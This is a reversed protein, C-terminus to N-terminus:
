RLVAALKAFVPVVDLSDRMQERMTQGRIELREMGDLDSLLTDRTENKAMDLSQMLYGAQFSSTGDANVWSPDKKGVSDFALCAGEELINGMHTRVEGHFSVRWMMEARVGVSSALHNFEREAQVWEDELMFSINALVQSGQFVCQVGALHTNESDGPAFTLSARM